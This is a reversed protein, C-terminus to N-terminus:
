PPAKGPLAITVSYWAAGNPSDSLHLIFGDPIHELAIVDRGSRKIISAKALDSTALAHWKAPTRRLDHWPAGQFRMSSPLSWHLHEWKIGTATFIFRESGDIQGSLTLFADKAAPRERSTSCGTFALVSFLLWLLHSHKM